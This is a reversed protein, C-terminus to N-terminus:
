YDVVSVKCEIAVIAVDEDDGHTFCRLISQVGAIALFENFCEIEHSSSQALIALSSHNGSAIISFEPARYTSDIMDMEILMDRQHVAGCSM